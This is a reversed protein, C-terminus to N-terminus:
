HFTEIADDELMGLYRRFDVMGEGIPTNVIRWKGDVLGWRFDKLCIPRIYPQMLRYSDPWVQGGEVVAHRIDFQCGLHDPDLERLVLFLDWIAASVRGEGSHNQYMGTIGIERNWEALDALQRRFRDIATVPHSDKDYRLWGMRYTRVGLSRALTLLEFDRRDATSDIATTIMDCRLGAARIAKIAAPLDREFNGPEVHGGPRVTLDIGHLGAAASAEAM